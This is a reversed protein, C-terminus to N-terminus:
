LPIMNEDQIVLGVVVNGPPLYVHLLEVKVRPGRLFGEGDIFFGLSRNIYAPTSILM